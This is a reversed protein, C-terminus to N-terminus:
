TALRNSRDLDFWRVSLSLVVLATLLENWVHLVQLEANERLYKVCSDWKATNNLQRRIQLLYCMSIPNGQMSRSTPNNNLEIVLWSNCKVKAYHSACFHQEPVCQRDTCLFYNVDWLVKAVEALEFQISNFQLIHITAHQISDNLHHNCLISCTYYFASYFGTM